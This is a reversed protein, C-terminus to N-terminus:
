DCSGVEVMEVPSGHREMLQMRTDVHVYQLQECATYGVYRLGPLHQCLAMLGLPTISPFEQLYLRTLQSRVTLDQLGVDGLAIAKPRLCVRLVNPFKRLLQWLDYANCVDLTCRTVGPMRPLAALLQRRTGGRAAADGKCAEICTHREVLM